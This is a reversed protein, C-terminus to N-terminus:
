QRSIMTDQPLLQCSPKMGKERIFEILGNIVDVKDKYNVSPNEVESIDTVASIITEVLETYCEQEAIRQHLAEEIASKVVNRTVQANQTAYALLALVTIHRQRIWHSYPATVVYKADPKHRSPADIKIYEKKVPHYSFYLFADPIDLRIPEGATVSKNGYYTYRKMKTDYSVKTVKTGRKRIFKPEVNEPWGVKEADVTIIKRGGADLREWQKKAQEM